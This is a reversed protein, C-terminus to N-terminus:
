LPVLGRYFRNVFRKMSRMPHSRRRAAAHASANLLSEDDVALVVRHEHEHEETQARNTIGQCIMHGDAM